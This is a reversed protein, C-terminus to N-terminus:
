RKPQTINAEAGYHPLVIRDNQSAELHDLATTQWDPDETGIVPIGLSYGLANAVTVGIRLGTFSGPGQFVMVARLDEWDLHQSKLMSLIHAHLDRALTRDAQWDDQAVVRHSEPDLLALHVLPADTRLSLIM